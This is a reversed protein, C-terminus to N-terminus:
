KLDKDLALVIKDNLEMALEIDVKRGRIILRMVAECKALLRKTEDDM